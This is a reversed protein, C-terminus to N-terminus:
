CTKKWLQQIYPYFLIYPKYFDFDYKKGLQSLSIIKQKKLNILEHMGITKIRWSEEGMKILRKRYKELLVFHYHSMKTIAHRVLEDIAGESVAGGFFHIVPINHPIASIPGILMEYRDGLVIILDKKKNSYKFLYIMM